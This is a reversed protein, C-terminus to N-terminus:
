RPRGVRALADQRRQLAELDRLTLERHTLNYTTNSTYSRSPGGAGALALQGPSPTNVLGAMTRDVARRGSEIGRVLGQPIYEGIRAMVRSPSKIGLAKRIASTMSKAVILMHKEITKQESKLGKILGQSAAIGAAYMADATTAGAKGAAAALLHQQRNIAKVQDPTAAVLAAATAAGGDVGAQAIQEILDKRVGQKRLKALNKAFLEVAKRDRDLRALIGEANMPGVGQTINAGSVINSKISAALQNRAQTQEKLKDTAKKLRNALQTERKALSTLMGTHAKIILLARSRVRGPALSDRIIDAVKTSAAKIQQSSGTLGEILGRAIWRGQAKTVKSPSAIGLAKAIPGPVASKAWSTLQSTLWGTMSQIGSWLGEVVNRGQSTLLSGLNGVSSVIRGPLGRVWGLFENGKAAAASQFRGWAASSTNALSSGLSGLAATSRGPLARVSSEWSSWQRSVPGSVYRAWLGGFWGGIATGLVNFVAPAESAKSSVWSTFSNWWEPVKERTAAILKDVFGVVMLTASAALAAAVLAPLAIFVSSIVGVLLTGKMIQEPNAMIWAAVQQGASILGNIVQPAMEKAKQALRQGILGLFAVVRDAGEKGGKGADDWLTGLTQKVSSLAPIVENGLFNVLGQQLGRKFAEVRTGANDRLSNGMEDAKGGVQGLADVATSPDLALLAKQMDESKTGFLEAAAADRKVPDEMERLTDLTEQLAEAADPGGKSIKKVMEDANLGIAKFGSVIRESGMVGELTFEKLADAVVDTDRAGAKMGQSMLGTATKADLGLRQFQVSYENFTDMLDDARPGMKQLGATFVNLADTGDKAIGTKIAQGVANATQGLDLEFTSSLDSVGTALRKLQAETADPPAIGARMVASIADAAGQFDETVADAYLQGAIKGYRQAEAPTAGLQAGLRGTIRSQDMADSMASMLAAGIAAGAVAGVAAGATKLKELRGTAEAVAGDAGQGAGDALGDGAADGAADGARRAPGVMGDGLRNGIRQGARRAAAEAEAAAATVADVLEGRMNRWQGDAGRVLGQGLLRGAGEGSNEADDGMRQGTQRLAREARRLAPDVASDDIVIFARLEGVTLAM